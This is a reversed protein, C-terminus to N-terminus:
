SVALDPQLDKLRKLLELGDMGPMRLDTIVMAASNAMFYDLALQPEQFIKCEYDADESFRLMLEGAKPDDDIFLIENQMQNM